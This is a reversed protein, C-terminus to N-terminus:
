FFRVRQHEQERNKGGVRRDGCVCYAKRGTMGCVVGKAKSSGARCLNLSSKIKIRFNPRSLAPGISDAERTDREM